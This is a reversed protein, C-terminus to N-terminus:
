SSPCSSVIPGASEGMVADLWGWQFAAVVSGLAAGVSLLYGLTAKIPVALSRFVIMLLIVSLGMVIAAFPLLADALQKSVDINVATTGAILIDTVGLEEEWQSSRDRLEQVLTATSEATQGDKPVIAVLGTDAGPNPTAQMIAVVGPVEQVKKALDDVTKTPDTSTIIDATVSLPSNYGAGFAATIGDYTQRAATDEPATSNDPLALDLQTAPIAAIGLVVLVAAITLLPVKTVIRM